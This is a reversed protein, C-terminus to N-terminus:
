SYFIKLTGPCGVSFGRWGGLLVSVQSFYRVVPWWFLENARGEGGCRGSRRKYCNKRESFRLNSPQPTRRGGRGQGARRRWDTLSEWGWCNSQAAQRSVASHQTSSSTNWCITPTLTHWWMRTPILLLFAARSSSHPRRWTLTAPLDL